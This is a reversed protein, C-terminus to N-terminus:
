AKKPTSFAIVWRMEDDKARRGDSVDVYKYHQKLIDRANDKETQYYTQVAGDEKTYNNTREKLFAETEEESSADNEDVAENLNDDDHNAEDYFYVDKAVISFKDIFDDFDGFYARWEKFVKLLANYADAYFSRREEELPEKFGNKKADKYLDKWMKALEKRSKKHDKVTKAFTPTVNVVLNDTGEDMNNCLEMNDELAENLNKTKVVKMSEELEKTKDSTDSTPISIGQAECLDFFKKVVYDWSNKCELLSTYTSVNDSMEKIINTDVNVEDEQLLEESLLQPLERYLSLLSKKILPFNDNQLAERFKLSVEASLKM